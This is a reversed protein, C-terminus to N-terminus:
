RYSDLVCNVVFDVMISRRLVSSLLTLVDLVVIVSSWRCWALLMKDFVLVDSTICERIKMLIVVESGLASRPVVIRVTNSCTGSRFM